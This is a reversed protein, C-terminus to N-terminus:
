GLVGFNSLLFVVLFAVLFLGLIIYIGASIIISRGLLAVIQISEYGLATELEKMRLRKGKLIQSYYLNVVVLIVALVAALILTVNHGFGVGFLAGSLLALIVNMFFAAEKKVGNASDRVSAYEAEMEAPRSVVIKRPKPPTTWESVFVAARAYSDDDHPSGREVVYTYRQGCPLKSTLALRARWPAPFMEAVAQECTQAAPPVSPAPATPDATPPADTM